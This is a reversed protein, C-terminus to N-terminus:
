VVDSRRITNPHSQLHLHPASSGVAVGDGEVVACMLAPREPDYQWLGNVGNQVEILDLPHVDSIRVDVGRWEVHVGDRHTGDNGYLADNEEPTRYICTLTMPEWGIKYAIDEADLLIQKVTADLQPSDWESAVRLSKFALSM